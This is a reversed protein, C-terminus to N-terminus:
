EKIDNDTYVYAEPLDYLLKSPLKRLTETNKHLRGLATAKGPGYSLAYAVQIHRLAHPTLTLRTFDTATYGAVAAQGRGTAPSGPLIGAIHGDTGIGFVAVVTEAEDYANVLTDGYFDVTQALPAGQMLIDIWHAPGPYFGAQTLQYHNSDAHGPRGYREDTPLITLLPLQDSCTERLKAM